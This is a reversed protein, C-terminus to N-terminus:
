EKHIIASISIIFAEIHYIDREGIVCRHEYKSASNIIFHKDTFSIDSSNLLKKTIHKIMCSGSINNIINAYIHKRIASIHKNKLLDNVINNISYTFYSEQQEHKYLLESNCISASIHCDNENIIKYVDKKTYVIGKDNLISIIFEFLADPHVAPVRYIYSLSHFRKSLRNLYHTTFIFKCSLKFTEIFCQLLHLSRTTLNHINYLIILKQIIKGNNDISYHVLKNKLFENIIYKDINGIKEIILEIHFNTERYFISVDSKTSTTFQYKLFDNVKFQNTMITRIIFNISSGSQGNIVISQFHNNIILDNLYIAHSKQLFFEEVYFPQYETIWM